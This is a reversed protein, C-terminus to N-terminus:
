TEPPCDRRTTASKMSRSSSNATPGTQLAARVPHRHAPVARDGGRQPDVMGVTRRSRVPRARASDVRIPEVRRGM